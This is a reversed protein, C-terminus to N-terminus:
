TACRRCCDILIPTPTRRTPTSMAASRSPRHGLILAEDDLLEAVRVRQRDLRFSGQQIQTLVLLHEMMEALTDANRLAIRLYDRQRDTIPGALGEEVISVFERLSTLPTRLDHSLNALFDAQLNRTQSQENDAGSGDGNGGGGSGDGPSRPSLRDADEKGRRVRDHRTSPPASSPRDKPSEGTAKTPEASAQGESLGSDNGSRVAMSEDGQGYPDPPQPIVNM